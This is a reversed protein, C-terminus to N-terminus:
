ELNDVIKELERRVDAFQMACDLVGQKVHPDSLDRTPGQEPDDASELDFLVKELALAAQSNEELENWILIFAIGPFTEHFVLEKLDEIRRKRSFLMSILRDFVM